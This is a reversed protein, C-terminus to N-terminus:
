CGVLECHRQHAHVVIIPGVLKQEVAGSVLAKRQSLVQCQHGVQANVRIPNSVVEHLVGEAGIGHGAMDSGGQLTMVRRLRVSILGQM